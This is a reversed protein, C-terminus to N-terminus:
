LIVNLSIFTQTSFIMWGYAAWGSCLGQLFGLACTLLIGWKLGILLRWFFLHLLIATLGIIMGGVGFSSASFLSTLILQKWQFTVGELNHQFVYLLPIATCTAFCILLWGLALRPRTPTTRDKHNAHITLGSLAAWIATGIFLGRIIEEPIPLSPAAFRQAGMVGLITALAYSLGIATGAMLFFAQSSLGKIKFGEFTFKNM